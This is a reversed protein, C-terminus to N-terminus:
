GAPKLSPFAYVNVDFTGLDSVYLLSSSKAAPAMWSAGRDPTFARDDIVTAVRSQAQLTLGPQPQSGGCAALEIAVAVSAFAKLKRLM